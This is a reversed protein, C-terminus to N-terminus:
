YMCVCVCVYLCVKKQVLEAVVHDAFFHLLELSKLLQTLKSFMGLYGEMTSKPHECDNDADMSEEATFCLSQVENHPRYIYMCSCLEVTLLCLLISISKQLKGVLHITVYIVLWNAVSM